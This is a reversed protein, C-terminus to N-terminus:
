PRFERDIIESIFRDVSVPYYRFKPGFILGMRTNEQSMLRDNIRNLHEEPKEEYNQLKFYESEIKLEKNHAYAFSFVRGQIEQDFSAPDFVDGFNAQLAQPSIIFKPSVNIKGSIEIAHAPNEDNPAVLIYPLEHYGSIIGSIPRRLIDTKTYIERLTENGGFQDHWSGM